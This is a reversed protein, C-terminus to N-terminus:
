LFPVALSATVASIVAWGLYNWWPVGRYRPGPLDDTYTWHGREVGLHDTVLDHGTALGAGLAVAPLGGTALLALRYAVYVIGPWGALVYIPVGRIQPEVHHALWGRNIVAAEAIFAVMSGGGFFAVTATGPWTVLAHGLAAAWLLISGTAVVPRGTVPDWTLDEHYFGTRSEGAALSRGIIRPAM